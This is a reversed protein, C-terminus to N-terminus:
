FTQLNSGLDQKMQGFNSFVGSAGGQEAFAIGYFAM